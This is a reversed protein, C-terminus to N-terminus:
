FMLRAGALLTRGRGPFGVTQQYAANFLNEGRLTVDLGPARGVARRVPADLSLALTSYGPLIVRAAVDGSYDVDDRAGSHVLTAASTLGHWRYELTASGTFAPRRILPRGPEDSLSSAVGTDTVETHLWTAQGTLTFQHTARWFLTAEVGRSNAGGLNTYTPDGPAANVYQILDRFQQWFATVGVRWREDVAWSEAGVESNTSHEPALNPNGTEYASHAILQSFTPAKFATGASGWVRSNSRVDWSVGVRWTGFSGFASNDDLRGGLQLSVARLPSALVQAYGDRTTRAGTLATTDTSAGYGFNSVGVDHEDDSEREAGVGASVTANYRAHWDLRLDAGRRWAIVGRDEVFDFGTTDAPTDSRNTYGDHERVAYGLLHMSSAHGVPHAADLSAAVNREETFQNHDVVNGSGDTPFHTVGDGDRINLSANGHTGDDFGIRTAGVANRYGGNFAYTGDSALRTGTASWSWRSGGLDVHSAFDSTGFTGGDGSLEVSGRESAHRTFLQIVGSMADAGYLVSAPGRVVEIRDLDATTLNAFDVGGGPLNLPVGDLLVKVYDSEGGRMFVSTVAGYSGDQVVTVGPVERLADLVLVVGRARLDDGHLVTTAAPVASAPVPVRTATVVLDAARATDTVAQASLACPALCCLWVISSVRM